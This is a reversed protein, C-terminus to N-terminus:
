HRPRRILLLGGLALVAVMAPEPVCWTDVVLEDVNIDGSIVIQEWPPNWPLKIEFITHAWSDDIMIDEIIPVPDVKGRPGHRFHLPRRHRQAPVAGPPVPTQPRWLLQIYIWKENEPKPDHNDVIIDISGSLPWVGFRGEDQELWTMDPGPTVTPQTSDLFPQGNPAAADPRYYAPDGARYGDPLYNFVWVQSTTSIRGRWWPPVRDVTLDVAFATSSLVFFLLLSLTVFHKMTNEGEVQIHRQMASTTSRRLAINWADLEKRLRIDM